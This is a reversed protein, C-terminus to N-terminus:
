LSIIRKKDIIKDLLIIILSPMKMSLIKLREIGVDTELDILIKSYELGLLYEVIDSYNKKIAIDLVNQKKNNIVSIDAGSDILYEVLNKNGSKIAFHIPSNTNGNGEYNIDSGYRILLKALGLNGRICCIDLPTMNQINRSDLNSGHKLLLEATQYRDNLCALHLMTNFDADKRDLLDMSHDNQIKLLYRVIDTNGRVCALHLCTQQNENRILILDKSIRRSFVFELFKLNGNKCIYHITTNGLLDKQKIIKEQM